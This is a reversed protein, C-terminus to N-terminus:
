FETKNIGEQINRRIPMKSFNNFYDIEGDPVNKM